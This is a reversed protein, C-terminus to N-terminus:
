RLNSSTLSRAIVVEFNVDLFHVPKRGIVHMGPSPADQQTATVDRSSLKAHGYVTPTGSRAQRQVIYPEYVAASEGRPVSPEFGDGEVLSDAAFRRVQSGDGEDM